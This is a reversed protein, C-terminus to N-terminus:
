RKASLQSKMLTIKDSLTRDMIGCMSQIQNLAALDKKEFAAKAADEMLGAKMYYKIKNEDKVKSLYKKAEYINDHKVCVDVFPEYGIPSKKSKSFKELELWDGGDALVTIQLWWFRRDPVKFEKRLEEVLKYERQILLQKMTQHLSLGRYSQPFKEEFKIQYKMLKLQEETAQAAFDNKAKRYSTLAEQLSSMKREIKNTMYSEMVFCHGESNFDSEQCYNERLLELDQEKCLKLYLNHAVPFQRINMHFDGKSLTTKLYRIVTYTLDTDGSDIAKLMAQPEQKLKILLPVQESARTEYDLLRVALSSHGYEMAKHSIEAYSIGPTCGLKEAIARATSDPDLKTRKVKYCAWHDLIRSAGETDPIKLYQCICIAYCYHRRLVLRDLLVPITLFELQTYSIPLAIISDRVANLVRLTQCMKVFPEPDMDPMFNKGFSAARLLMKQTSPQYEHGAAKLCCKVADELENKERIMRIYEDAKHSRRRFENSAELLLASPSVSGIRFVDAVADPVKQLLEHTTNGIIRVGDIEPVLHIPSYFIDNMYDKEPGIVIMFYEKNGFQWFGVVAGNGCWVLQQPRTKSETDFECYKKQLAFELSASGMWLAGNDTFLAVHQNNCSVAIETIANVTSNFKPSVQMCKDENQLLMYLNADKAVLVKTNREEAIVAWSSPPANLGPVSPMRRIRPEKINNVLYINFAGTLVAVGTYFKSSNFIRCELVGTDKVDQGMNTQKQLNGYIDYLLVNGDELVCVLDESSSWGMQVLPGSNWKITSIAQGSASFIYINSKNAFQVKQLKKKDQTVALPGGFPAAAVVFDSLNVQDVWQMPYLEVKRYYVNKGLPTWDATYLAM